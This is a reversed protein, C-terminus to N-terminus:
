LKYDMFLPILFWCFLSILIISVVNLIFGAYVMQRLKIYGSSFVIANPPTGMPLMSACSAAMTMPVGLMLPNIDMASALSSVVPAFIIVQAVNSTLESIFISITTIILIMMFGKIQYSALWNGLLQVLQAEELGKGLAIGGGFLLLIGWAMKKSDEWILLNESGSQNETTKMGAPIAFLAITSILAIMTDDLQFFPNLKNIVGRTIWLTSTFIFVILVRKEANSFKGLDKYQQNIIAKTESSSKIHNPYLWKALIWYLTIMLAISLPTCVMMWDIFDIQHHYQTYIHGVYSINPPTGVITAIGGMNSAFAIVLMLVLSFNDLNGNGSYNKKMVHIISLAIPLMMITTATNSLWMSLLGTALIFGIIIRNGSTGTLKVISLAIRRHLNWKEIALGLMFGGLFLFIIPSAYSYAAKDISMIKLLPFLILPVLGVVPMPLAESVWWSIMLIAVFLTKNALESVNLPNIAYFLVALFLGIFIKIFSSKLIVSKAM